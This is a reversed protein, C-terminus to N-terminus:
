IEGYYIVSVAVGSNYVAKHYKALWIEAIM